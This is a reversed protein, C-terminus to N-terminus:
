ARQVSKGMLLLHSTLTTLHNRLVQFHESDWLIVRGVKFNNLGGLGWGLARKVGLHRENVDKAEQGTGKFM